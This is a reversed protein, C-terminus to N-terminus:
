EMFHGLNTTQEYCAVILGTSQVRQKAVSSLMSPDVPYITWEYKINLM